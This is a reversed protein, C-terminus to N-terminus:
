VPFTGKMVRVPQPAFMTEREINERARAEISIKGDGRAENSRYLASRCSM